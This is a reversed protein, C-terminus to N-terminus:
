ESQSGNHKHNRSKLLAETLKSLDTIQLDSQTIEKYKNIVKARTKRNLKVSVKKFPVFKVPSANQTSIETREKIPSNLLSSQVAIDKFDTSM